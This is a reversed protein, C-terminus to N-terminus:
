TGIRNKVFANQSFRKSPDTTSSGLFERSLSTDIQAFKMSSYKISTSVGQAGMSVSISSVGQDMDFDAREPPRFYKIDTTIFPGEFEPNVTNINKIFHNAEEYESSFVSFNRKSFQKVKSLDTRLFNIEPTSTDQQDDVSKDNRVVMYKVVIKDKVGDLIRTSDFAERCQDRIDEAKRTSGSDQKALFRGQTSTFLYFNKNITDTFDETDDMSDNFFSMNRIAIVHFGDDDSAGFIKAALDKVRLNQFRVKRKKAVARGITVIFSLEPVNTIFENGDAIAINYQGSQLDADLYQRRDLRNKSIPTSIYVGGLMTMYSEIFSLYNAESVSIANKGNVLLRIAQESEAPDFDFFNYRDDSNIVSYWNGRNKDLLNVKSYSYEDKGYIDGNNNGNTEGLAFVFKDTAEANQTRNYFPAVIKAFDMDQESVLDIENGVLEDEGLKYLVHKKAKPEISFSRNEGEFKTAQGKIFHHTADVNKISKTLTLQEASETNEFNLYLNNLNTNISAVEANTVIKIEQTFPDVYFSRGIKGLVTTLVKRFTGSDSFMINEDSLFRKDESEFSIGKSLFLKFLDSATYGFKLEGQEPNYGLAIVTSAGGLLARDDTTLTRNLEFADIVVKREEVFTNGGLVEEAASDITITRSAEDRMTLRGFGIVNVGNGFNKNFNRSTTPREINDSFRTQRPYSTESVFLAKDIFYGNSSLNGRMDTHTGWVFVMERDLIESMSDILEVQLTTFKSDQRLSTELVIMELGFPPIHVKENMKPVNYENNESIITLTCTSAESGSQFNYNISMIEGGFLSGLNKRSHETAM